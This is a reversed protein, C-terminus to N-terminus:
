ERIFTGENLEKLRTQAARIQAEIEHVKDELLKREKEAAEAKKKRRQRQLIHFKPLELPPLTEGERAEVPLGNDERFVKELQEVEKEAAKM